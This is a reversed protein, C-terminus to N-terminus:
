PGFRSRYEISSLFAKVMEAEIFNGNFQDLKNLWFDYGGFNGDPADNPNRRLYGFYEMLVFARNREHQDLLANKAVKLLVDARAVATGDASLEATLTNTEEETLVNGSNQNLRAVFQEPTLNLPYADIFRERQVFALAFAQKNTELQQEWGPAKVIVGQGIVASDASLEARKIIPVPLGTTPDTRDGYAVKYMREVLYGTNQFEISLFFSASVSIRKVEICQPDTGCSTIENTWFALGDADPERSLFDRYHQAVFFDPCDIPNPNACAASVLPQWSANRGSTLQRFGTGDINKVFIGGEISYIIWKGDPSWSPNDRNMKCNTWWDCGDFFQSNTGDANAIFLNYAFDWVNVVFVIKDGSPAWKAYYHDWGDNGLGSSLERIDTGDPKITHLTLGTHGNDFLNRSFLIRSGDPSWSPMSDWEPGNTLDQRNGNEINVIVLDTDVLNSDQFVIRKGDPSWSMSWSCCFSNGGIPTIETRNTGDPNMTFIAFGGAPRESVFAIKTGDPSWTPHDDVVSNNTIRIQNTGDPNVVYIEHNGDRDSTFAIKGNERLTPPTTAIPTPTPTATPIPIPTPTPTADDGQYRVVVFDKFEDPGSDGAVVIKGDPQMAVSSAHDWANGVSTIVTGTGNFSTDLSGNPNLRVLAFDSGEVSFDSGISSSDGAVVIKGNPQIAVSSAYDGSDSDPNLIKGTGGFSTDLSGDPNYRVVAFDATRWDSTALSYGAVVIKGDTQIALDSAGGGANGVSTIVNGTGNFSTDLSGDANYRVLVFASSGNRSQGVAIIKGDAQIAVSNAGGGVPTTGRGSGNFSTDLSGDANYRVIAFNGNGSSGAVVIKGDAQIAVSSVVIGSTIVLGTSNFSADLSGNPNYRVVASNSDTRDCRGAVVIKGDPQIAVAMAGDYNDSLHTVVRGNSGFSSDLSGDTNYRVVAFDWAVFTFPGDNGEGVVVIKGDPQIAMALAHSLYNPNNGNFGRTIVIGGNGFTPDLDGPAASISATLAFLLSMALILPKYTGSM